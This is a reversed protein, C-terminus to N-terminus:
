SEYTAAGEETCRLLLTSVFLDGKDEWEASGDFENCIDEIISLGFGHSLSDSKTTKHSFPIRPNKSNEMRISLFDAAMTAQLRICPADAGSEMCGSIANDLLNFFVSGLKSPPIACTEPLMIQYTVTIGSQEAMEQKSALIANILNDQCIPHFREKQFQDSVTSLYSEAQAYNGEELYSRLTSLKALMDKQYSAQQKQKKELFRDQKEQMSVQEEMAALDAQTRANQIEWLIVRYMQWFFLLHFAAMLFTVLIPNFLNLSCCFGAVQIAFLSLFLSLLKRKNM